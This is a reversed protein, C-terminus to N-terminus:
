NIIINGTSPFIDVRVINQQNETSIVQNLAIGTNIGGDTLVLRMSKSNNKDQHLSLLLADSVSSGSSQMSILTKCGGIHAENILSICSPRLSKLSDIIQKALIIRTPNQDESQM